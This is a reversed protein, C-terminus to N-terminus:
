HLLFMFCSIPVNTFNSLYRTGEEMIDQTYTNWIVSLWTNCKKEIDCVFGWARNGMKTSSFYFLVNNLAMHISWFLVNNLAMHMSWLLVNNLAMHIRWVFFMKWHWLYAEFCFMIWHWIYAEFVSLTYM